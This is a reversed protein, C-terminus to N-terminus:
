VSPNTQAAVSTSMRCAGIVVVTAFMAAALAIRNSRSLPHSLARADDLIRDIRGSVGAHRAMAVGATALNTRRGAFGLLMAAYAPREGVHSLAADDSSHEALTAIQQDLWWALPNIWYIARNMKSLCQTLFDQEAIHAREHALVADLTENSWLHWDTPLLIRPNFIGYTVPVSLSASEYVEPGLDPMPTADSGLLRLRLLGLGARLLLLGAVLMYSRFAMTRWDITIPAVIHSIPAPSGVFQTAARRVVQTVRTPQPVVVARKPIWSVLPMMLSAYLVLRWVALKTTSSRVRFVALALGAIGGIVIARLITEFIPALTM